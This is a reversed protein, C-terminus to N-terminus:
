RNTRFTPDFSIIDGFIDYDSRGIGDTWFLGTLHGEKDVKYDYYFSNNSTEKKLKFKALIMEADHEGIGLKIDRSFNKFDSATAGVNEYSGVMEKALGYARTAGINARACDMIFNQYGVSLDRNCRLFMKGVESALPHNHQEVFSMVVFGRPGAPKMVIQAKCGCRRSTTRRRKGPIEAVSESYVKNQTPSGAHNCQIHKAKM